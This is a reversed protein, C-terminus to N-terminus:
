TECFRKMIVIPLRLDFITGRGIGLTNVLSLSTVHIKMHKYNFIILVLM